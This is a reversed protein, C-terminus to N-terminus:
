SIFTASFLLTIVKELLCTDDHDHCETHAKKYEVKKNKCTMYFNHGVNGGALKRFHIIM